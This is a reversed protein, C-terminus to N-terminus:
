RIIEVITKPEGAYTHVYVFSAESGTEKYGKLENNEISSVKFEDKESDDYRMSKCTATAYYLYECDEITVNELIPEDHEWNGNFNNNYYVFIAGNLTTFVYGKRFAPTSGHSGTNPYVTGNEISPRMYFKFKGVYGKHDLEYRVIDGVKLDSASLQTSHFGEIKSPVNGNEDAVPDPAGAFVSGNKFSLKVNGNVTLLTVADIEEGDGRADIMKSVGTVVALNTVGRMSESLVIKGESSGTGGIGVPAAVFSSTLEEDSNFFAWAGESVTTDHMVNSTFKVYTYEDTDFVVEPNESTIVPYRLMMTNANLCVRPGLIFYNSYRRFYPASEYVGYLTNGNTKPTERTALNASDQMITDISTIKGNSNITYLVVSCRTGSPAAGQYFRAAATELQKLLSEDTAKYRVGDVKVNSACPYRVLEGNTTYILFSLTQEIAGETDAVAIFGYNAKVAESAVADVVKGKVDLRLTLNAGPKLLDGSRESVEKSLEYRQGSVTIYEDDELEDIEGSIVKTSIYARRYIHASDKTEDYVSLVANKVVEEAEVELGEENYLVVYPEDTTNDLVLSTIVGNEKFYVISNAPDFHDVVINKYVDLFAVDYKGDGTNDLLKLTGSKGEHLGDTLAQGTATGNYIVAIGKKCNYKKIKKGDTTYARICTNEIDTIDEVDIIIEENDTTPELYIVKDEGHRPSVYYAKVNYGLYSYPDEIARSELSLGDVEIHFPLVDNDGILKSMDVEVVGEAISIGFATSLLTTGPEVKYESEESGSTYSQVMIDAHLANYLLLVAQGKTIASSSMFEEAGDSIDAQNAVTIYGAPYGGMSDAKPGYGLTKVILAVAEKSSISENVRVKGDSGPAIIGIKYLTKTWGEYEAGANLDSFVTEETLTEPYGNAKCLLKYFEGRSITNNLDEATYGAIDLATILGNEEIGYVTYSAEEAHVLVCAFLMSVAIILALVRSISKM